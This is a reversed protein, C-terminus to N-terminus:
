AFPAEAERVPSRAAANTGPITLAWPEGSVLLPPPGGPQAVVEPGAVSEFTEKLFGPPWNSLAVPLIQQNKSYLAIGPGGAGGALAGPRLDRTGRCKRLGEDAERGEREVL